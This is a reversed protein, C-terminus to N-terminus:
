IFQITENPKQVYCHTHVLTEVDSVATRKLSGNSLNLKEFNTPPWDERSFGESNKEVQGQQPFLPLHLTKLNCFSSYQLLKFQIAIM